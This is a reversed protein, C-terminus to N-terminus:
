PTNGFDTVGNATPYNLQGIHLLKPYDTLVKPVKESFLTCLSREDLRM